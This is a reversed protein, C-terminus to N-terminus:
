EDVILEYIKKCNYGMFRRLVDDLYEESNIKLGRCTQVLSLLV